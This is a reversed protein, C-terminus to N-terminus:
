KKELAALLRRAPQEYAFPGEGSLSKAVLDRAEDARGRRQALVAMYYAADRTVTGSSAALKLLREAEELQGLRLNAWGLVMAAEPSRPAAKAYLQALTLARQQETKKDHDALLAALQGTAQMHEPASQVVQELYRQAEDAKGLYRAIAGRWYKADISAPDIREAARAHEDAAAYDGADWSLSALAIQPRADKPLADAARELWSKAEDLKGSRQAIQAMVLEAPLLKPAAQAARQLGAFAEDAKGQAYRAAALRQHVAPQSPRLAILKTLQEEAVDWQRRGEAVMAIGSLHQAALSKRRSDPGDFTDLLRKGEAYQLEADSWRREGAALDGFILHPEPDDPAETVALELETRGKAPQSESFYMNALMVRPPPLEPHSVGLRKLLEFAQEPDGAEFKRIAATVEPPRADASDSKAPKNRIPAAITPSSRQPGAVILLGVVAARCSPKRMQDAVSSIHNLCRAQQFRWPACAVNGNM